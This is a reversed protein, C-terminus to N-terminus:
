TMPEIGVPQRAKKRRKRERLLTDKILDRLSTCCYEDKKVIFHISLQAAQPLVLM